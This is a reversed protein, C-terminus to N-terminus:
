HRKNYSPSVNTTGTPWTPTIGLTSINAKGLTLNLIVGYNRTTKTGDGPIEGTAKIYTTNLIKSAPLQNYATVIASSSGGNTGNNNVIVGNDNRPRSYYFPSTASLAPTAYDIPGFNAVSWVAVRSDEYTTRGDGKEVSYSPNVQWTRLWDWSTGNFKYQLAYMKQMQNINNDNDITNNGTNTVVIAFDGTVPSGYIPNPYLPNTSWVKDLYNDRILIADPIYYATNTYTTYSNYPYVGNNSGAAAAASLVNPNFTELDLMLTKVTPATTLGTILGNTITLSKVNSFTGNLAVGNNACALVDYISGMGLTGNSDLQYLVDCHDGKGGPYLLENIRVDTDFVATGGSPALQLCTAVGSGDYLRDQTNITLGENNGFHLVSKYTLNIQQGTFNPTTAM